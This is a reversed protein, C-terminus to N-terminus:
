FQFYLFPTEDAPGWILIMLVMFAIALGRARWDWDLMRTHSRRREQPIDLWLVAALPLILPILAVIAPGGGGRLTAIGGLYEFAVGFDPSRFFVWTLMVLHFTALTKAVRTLVAAVSRPERTPAKSARRGVLLKHASLYVGHLVGWAVFTWNAGHWLGGLLMTLMLNRYTNLKGRRNGGLPIYLYDRLWTSLSIHWRRWFETINSAFYPRQFNEMLEFGLLRSVGRAIDSYGAFDCYIQISFLWVGRLLMHWPQSGANAFSEEVYPAVADAIAVKRFFGILILLLGSRLKDDDVARPGLMQPLLSRGREIPGAVLQPFFSVYLALAVFDRTPKLERRYADITYSM